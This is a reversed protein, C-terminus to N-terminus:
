IIMTSSLNVKQVSIDLAKFEQDQHECVAQYFQNEICLHVELVISFDYTRIAASGRSKKAFYQLICDKDSSIPVGKHEITVQEM